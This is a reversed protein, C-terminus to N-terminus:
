ICNAGAGAGSKGTTKAKSEKKGFKETRKKDELVALLWRGVARVPPIRRCFQPRINGIYQVAAVEPIHSPTYIINSASTESPRILSSISEPAM